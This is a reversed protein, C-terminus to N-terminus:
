TGVPSYKTSFYSKRPTDPVTQFLNRRVIQQERSALRSYEIFSNQDPETPRGAMGLFYIVQDFNV